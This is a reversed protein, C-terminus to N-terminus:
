SCLFPPLIHVHIEHLLFIFINKNQKTFAHSRCRKGDHYKLLSSTASTTIGIRAFEKTLEVMYTHAHLHTHLIWNGPFSGPTYLPSVVEEWNNDILYWECEMATRLPGQLSYLYFFYFIFKNGTPM